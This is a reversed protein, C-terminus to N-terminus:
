TGYALVFSSVIMSLTTGNHVGFEEGIQEAAPAVMSSSVPSIFSFLSVAVAALWKTRSPWSNYSQVM